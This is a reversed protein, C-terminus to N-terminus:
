DDQEGHIQYSIPLEKIINLKQWSGIAIKLNLEFIEM